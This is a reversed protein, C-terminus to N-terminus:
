TLVIHAKYKKENTLHPLLQNQLESYACVQPGKLMDKGSLKNEKNQILAASNCYKNLHSFIIRHYKISQYSLNQQDLFISDISSLLSTVEGLNLNKKTTLSGIAALFKEEISLINDNKYNELITTLASFFIHQHEETNTLDNYNGPKSLNTLISKRKDAVRKEHKEPTEGKNIEWSLSNVQDVFLNYYPSDVIGYPDEQTPAAMVQGSFFALNLLVFGLLNLKTNKIAM